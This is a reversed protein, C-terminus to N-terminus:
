NEEPGYDREKARRAAAADFTEGTAELIADDKAYVQWRRVATDCYTPDLEIARARRGTKEAAILITGSGCFADLVIGGRQSCDLVADAVMAVPKVTPHLALEELRRAGGSNQGRYTWVNTRYRGKQGLEFNNRHAATGKKYVFILEHRSRYFTGMGGNDKSWVILNKLENYIPDAVARLEMMHRWDMCIFHISGDSSHHAIHELSAGLFAAFEIQSMEGSAMAFERHKIRGSGGVHGNVRVNYPPDTFVMQARERGLLAEYVASSRADGCILRHEGCIWVDGSQTIAPGALPIPLQEDRPDGADEPAGSAVLSDIEPPEFGTLDVEFDLKQLTQLEEILLPEDWTANLALKNDAIAYAIKEVEDLGEVRLCPVETMGAQKAAELRGHGALIRNNEDVILPATFSFRKISNVLQRIQKKSHKRANRPNPHLREVPLQCINLVPEGSNSPFTPDSQKQSVEPLETTRLGGSTRNLTEFPPDVENLSNGSFQQGIGALIPLLSRFNEHEALAQVAKAMVVASDALPTLAEGLGELIALYFRRRAAGILESRQANFKTRLRRQDSADEFGLLEAAKTTNPCGDRVILDAMSELNTTDDLGTGKPRGRKKREHSNTPSM